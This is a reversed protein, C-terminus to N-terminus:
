DKRIRLVLVTTTSQKKMDVSRSQATMTNPELSCRFHCFEMTEYLVYFLMRMM